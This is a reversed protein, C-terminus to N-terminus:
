KYSTNLSKNLLLFPRAETNFVYTDLSIVDATSFLLYLYKITEALFFSEMNNNQQPNKSMIDQLGSYATPTKCWKEISERIKWSREQYKKDGTVRYLVFLSEVTESRTDSKKM